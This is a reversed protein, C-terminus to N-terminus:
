KAGTKLMNWYKQYIQIVDGVDDQFEGREIDEKSPNIIPSNKVKNSLLARGALNPTAYGTHEMCKKASTAKLMFNIFAHAAKVNSANKPIVFSDVWFIAGEKPYIYHLHKTEEKAMWAEGNWIMGINTDGALYPMRPADSNFAQVNPMLTKLLEYAEKIEKENRTNGSYGKIALAIQFVERVDDTLLVDGAFKQNWLDSWSTISKPDIEEGNVAIGTSGWLYPISYQNNPDYPKNLLNTDLNKLNPILTKDVPHLMGEKRMKSVFYASPVVVDYGSSKMLKLKAYMSENSEYTSYEVDIGTEKEFQAVLGDPIYQSWNYVVVKQNAFVSTSFALAALGLLVIPRM